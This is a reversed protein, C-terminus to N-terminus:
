QCADMIICGDLEHMACFRARKIGLRRVTQRHRELEDDGYSTIVWDANDQLKRVLVEFYEM